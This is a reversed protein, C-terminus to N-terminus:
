EDSAKAGKDHDEGYTRKRKRPHDVAKDSCALEVAAHEKFLDVLDGGESLFGQVVCPDPDSAENAARAAKLEAKRKLYRSRVSGSRPIDVSDFRIAPARRATLPERSREGPSPLAFGYRRRMEDFDIRSYSESCQFVIDELLEQLEPNGQVRIQSRSSTFLVRKTSGGVEVGDVLSVTDFLTRVLGSLPSADTPHFRCVLFLYVHVFSELDDSRRYPKWPYLLSLASRFQWAGIRDPTSTRGTGLECELRSLDWDILMGRRRDSDRTPPVILINAVSIDGHLVRALTWANYHAQIVDVFIASLEPFSDFDELPIGIEKIVLRYHVRLSPRSEKPLYDQIRTQQAWRGGVDGGCILTGIGRDIGYFRLRQYVLHEPRTRGPIVPRWSDKLFCVCWSESDADTIDYAFYGRTCRGFLEDTAFYPRGVLFFRAEPQPSQSQLPDGSPSLESLPSSQSQATLPRGFEKPPPFPMDSFWEDESPEAPAVELKYVPYNDAAARMFGERVHQPLNMDDKLALFRDKEEGSALTATPDRGLDELRGANALKAVKWVFRHLLSNREDWRFPETVLIGSCDVYFLRAMDYCVHVAYSFTRHQYKYLNRMYDVFYGLVEEGHVHDSLKTSRPPQLAEPRRTTSGVGHEGSPAESVSLAGHVVSREAAEGDDVARIVQDGLRYPTPTSEYSPTSPQSPDEHGRLEGGLYVSSAHPESMKIQFPIEICDWSRLEAHGLTTRIGECPAPARDKAYGGKANHDMFRLVDCGSADFVSHVVTALEQHLEHETKGPNLDPKKFKKCDEQTPPGGPVGNVLIEPSILHIHPVM